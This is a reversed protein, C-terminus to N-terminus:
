DYDSKGRTTSVIIPFIISTCSLFPVRRFPVALHLCVCASTPLHAHCHMCSLHALIHLARSPLAVRWRLPVFRFNFIGLPVFVGASALVQLARLRSCVRHMRQTLAAHKLYTPLHRASNSASTLVDQRWNRQWKDLGVATHERLSRPETATVWEKFTYFQPFFWLPVHVFGDFTASFVAKAWPNAIPLGNLIKCLGYFWAGYYAGFGYFMAARRKDFESSSGMAIIAQQAIVDGTGYKLSLFLQALPLGSVAPLLQSARGAMRHRRRRRHAEETNQIRAAHTSTFVTGHKLNSVRM